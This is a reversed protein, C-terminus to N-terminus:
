SASHVTGVQKQMKADGKVPKVLWDVGAFESASVWPLAEGVRVEASGAEPVDLQKEKEAAATKEEVGIRM